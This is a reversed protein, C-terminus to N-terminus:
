LAVILEEASDTDSPGFLVKNQQYLFKPPRRTLSLGILKTIIFESPALGSLM